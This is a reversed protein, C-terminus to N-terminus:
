HERYIGPLDRLARLMAARRHKATTCHRAHFGLCWTVVCKPPVLSTVTTPSRAVLMIFM